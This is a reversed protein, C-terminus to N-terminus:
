CTCASNNSTTALSRGRFRITLKTNAGQHCLIMRPDSSGYSYLYETGGSPSLFMTAVTSQLCIVPTTSGGENFPIKYDEILCDKTPNSCDATATSDLGDTGDGDYFMLWGNPWQIANAGVLCTASSNRDAACIGVSDNRTAAESRARLISVAVSDKVTNIRSRQLTSQFSPIGIVMLITLLSIAVMIEILTVGRQKECHKKQRQGSIQRSVLAKLM